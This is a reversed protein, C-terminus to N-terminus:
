RVAEDPYARRVNKWDKARVDVWSASAAAALAAFVIAKSLM